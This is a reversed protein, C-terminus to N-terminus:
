AAQREEERALDEIQARLMAPDCGCPCWVDVLEPSLLKIRLDHGRYRETDRTVGPCPSALLGVEPAEFLPLAAEVLARPYVGPMVSLCLLQPRHFNEEV